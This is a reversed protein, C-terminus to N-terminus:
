QLSRGSLQAGIEVIRLLTSVVPRGLIALVFAGKPFVAGLLGVSFGLLMAPGVFFSAIPTFIIGSWGIQDLGFSTIIIPLTALSASLSESFGALLRPLVRKLVPEMWLLGATAAVSLRFGVDWWWLPRVMLLALSAAVFVRKASRDTGLLERALYGILGILGARAISAESRAILIYFSISIIMLIIKLLRKRFLLGTVGTLLTIVIGVNYGSAALLHLLGSQQFKLYLQQDVGDSGGLLLGVLVAQERKQFFQGLHVVFFSRLQNASTVVSFLVRQPYTLRTSFEDIVADYLVFGSFPREIVRWGLTGHADILVSETAPLNEPNNNKVVPTIISIGSLTDIYYNGSRYIQKVLVDSIRVNEGILSSIGYKYSLILRVLVSTVFIIWFM